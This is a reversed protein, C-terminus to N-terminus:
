GAKEQADLEMRVRKAIRNAQILDATSAKTRGQRQAWQFAAWGTKYGCRLAVRVLDELTEAARTLYGRQKRAEVQEPTAIVTQVSFPAQRDVEVLEGDVVELQRGQAVHPKSCCPCKPLRASYVAFCDPCTYLAPGTDDARKKAPMGHLSWERPTDPLGHRLSGGAHDLIIAPEPKRRLCRGVMQLWLALSETPRLMIGGQVPVERGVQASLDFGTTVLDVNCLVLIRGEALDGIVRRREADTFTGDIHGAPIGAQNFQAAADQSAKISVAFLLARRGAMYKRYHETASGVIQRTNMVAELEATKWDGRVKPVGGLDPRSPAFIRFDSLRGADILERVPPGEVLVDFHQGLPRGDLRQPTATNGVVHAGRAKFYAIVESWTRSCALHCEDIYLLDPCVVRDLRRRLTEISAIQVPATNSGRGAAIFGFPIDWTEFTLSTQHVLDKRHVAFIVRKGKSSARKAIYAAVQTKGFGTAAQALVAQHEHLAARLQGVFVDQDPYLAVM